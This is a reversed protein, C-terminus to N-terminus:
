HAMAVEPLRDINLIDLPQPLGACVTVGSDALSVRLALTEDRLNVVLCAVFRCGSHLGNTDADLLEALEDSCDGSFHLRSAWGALRRRFLHGAAHSLLDQLEAQMEVPMEAQELRCTRAQMLEVDSTFPGFRHPGARWLDRGHSICVRRLRQGPWYPASGLECVELALGRGFFGNGARVLRALYRRTGHSFEVWPACSGIGAAVRHAGESLLAQHATPEGWPSHMDVPSARLIRADSSM